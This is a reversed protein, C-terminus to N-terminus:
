EAMLFCIRGNAVVHISSSPIISLSILWASFSLHCIIESMQPTYCCLLSFSCFLLLSGSEWFPNSTVLPFPIPLSHSSSPLRTSLPMIILVCVTPTHCPSLLIACLLWTSVSYCRVMSISLSQLPTHLSYKIIPPATILVINSIPFRWLITYWHYRLLFLILLM